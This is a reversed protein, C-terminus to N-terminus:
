LYSDYVVTNRYFRWYYNYRMSVDEMSDDQLEEDDSESRAGNAAMDSLDIDTDIDKQIKHTSEEGEDKFNSYKGKCANPEFCELFKACFPLKSINNVIKTQFLQTEKIIGKQSTNKKSGLCSKGLCNGM